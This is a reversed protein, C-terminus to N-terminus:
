DGGKVADEAQKERIQACFCFIDPRFPPPNTM